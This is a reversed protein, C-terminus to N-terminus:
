VLTTPDEDFIDILCNKLRAIKMYDNKDKLAATDYTTVELKRTTLKYWDDPGPTVQRNM